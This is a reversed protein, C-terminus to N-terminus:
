RTYWANVAQSRKRVALVTNRLPNEGVPKGSESFMALISRRPFIYVM